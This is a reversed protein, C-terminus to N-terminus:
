QEAQQGCSTHYIYGAKSSLKASSLAGCTLSLHYLTCYHIAIYSNGFVNYLAGM